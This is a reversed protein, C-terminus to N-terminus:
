NPKGRWSIEMGRTTKTKDIQLIEFGLSRCLRRAAFLGPPKGENTISFVVMESDKDQSCLFQYRDITGIITRQAGPTEETIDEWREAREALTEFIM